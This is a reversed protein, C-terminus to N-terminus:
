FLSKVACESVELHQALLMCQPCGFLQRTEHVPLDPKEKKTQIRSPAEGQGALPQLRPSVRYEGAPSGECALRTAHGHGASVAVVRFSSRERGLIAADAVAAHPIKLARHLRSLPQLSGVQCIWPWSPGQLALQPLLPMEVVEASTSFSPRHPERRHRRVAQRVHPWVHQWLCGGADAAGLFVLQCRRELVIQFKQHIKSVRQNWEWLLSLTYQSPCSLPFWPKLNM